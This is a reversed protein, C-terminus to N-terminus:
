DDDGGILGIQQLMARRAETDPESMATALDVTRALDLGLRARSRPSMGLADLHDAAERRLRTELALAPRIAGTEPDFIGMAAVYEAISDLRCMCEAALRVQAADSRPLGGDIGRLPADAALADFVERVKADLREAAVAAYGAHTVALRNDTPAATAGPKLNSLQRARKGPDSSLGVVM